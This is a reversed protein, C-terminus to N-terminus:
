PAVQLACDPFIDSCFLRWNASLALFFFVCMKTRYTSEPTVAGSHYVGCPLRSQGKSPLLSLVAGCVVAWPRAETIGCALSVRGAM